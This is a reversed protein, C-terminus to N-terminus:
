QASRARALREARPEHTPNYEYISPTLMGDDDTSWPDYPIDRGGTAVPKGQDDPRVVIDAVIFLAVYPFKRAHKVENRTLEVATGDMTTGKVEVYLEVGRRYCTLDYSLGISARPDVHWGLAEFHATARKMAHEGVARREVPNTQRGPARTADNASAQAAREIEAVIAIPLEGVPRGVGIVRRV